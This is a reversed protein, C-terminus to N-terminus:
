DDGAAALCEDLPVGAAAAAEALTEPDDLDFGGCFHLRTAALAFRAGAGLESARAAARLARTSRAPFESPGCWRFACRAPAPRPASACRRSSM